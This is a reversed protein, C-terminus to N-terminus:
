AAAPVAALPQLRRRFQARLLLWSTVAQLTVTTVSLYWLHEVQFWSQQSMWIAPLVFTLVRSGTAILAPRTDGLGQFMSSCTFIVGQAVFYWSTITLFTAAVSRVEPEDTFGAVLLAPSLHILVTLTAMIVSSILVAKRFTERVREPQRAGFNQGAIPGAAFAVAMAPLFISQMVRSGIGFGAQATAGFDRICWYIVGMFLFLLLFEGGTPLGIALVRKWADMRPRWQEPHFGVYKELRAFYFGLLGVAAIIAITSALGAGAVGMPKGTGWGVILIPALIVNLIVTVVQAVMTPKVIGTGRLASGMAVLAFQAAMGPLFWYLYTVGAEITAADAAVAQVYPRTLAYGGILTILACLASLVISQNFFLNAEAQDKRGVAHSILAVTGVGLVQTLGIVIFMLNGAAGVGAIAADGLRAVFYLDVLYYLTQFIMGFAIPLAMAVIHRSVPGQTLDKM